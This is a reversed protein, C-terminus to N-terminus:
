ANKLEETMAVPVRDFSSGAVTGLRSPAIVTEVLGTAVDYVLGSVLWAAPLTGVSRLLAVDLAVALRPDSVMKSGLQKEEIQFFKALRVPDGVLRSIGCDTHHLVILHFQGGANPIKELVENIRGLLGLQEVVAPTIRGGINRLVVADGSELGLVKAPDVRMDVCGVILAKLRPIADSLSSVLTGALSERQAFHQNLTLMSEFNTM